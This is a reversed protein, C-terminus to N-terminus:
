KEQKTKPSKTAAGSPAGGQSSKAKAAAITRILIRLHEEALAQYEPELRNYITSLPPTPAATDTKGFLLYDASVHLALCLNQFTTLSPGRQGSEIYGLFLISIDIQEALEERSLGLVLRASRVRAGVEMNIQKKDM